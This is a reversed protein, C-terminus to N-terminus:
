RAIWQKKTHMPVIRGTGTAADLGVKAMVSTAGDVATGSGGFGLTAALPLAALTAVLSM